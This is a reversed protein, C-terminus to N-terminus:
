ATPAFACAESHSGASKKSSRTLYGAMEDAAEAALVSEVVEIGAARLM